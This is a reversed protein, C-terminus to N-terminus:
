FKDKNLEKNKKNKRNQSIKNKRKRKEGATEFYQRENYEIILKSERVKRKFKTLVKNVDDKDKVKLYIM